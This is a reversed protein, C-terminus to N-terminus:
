EYVSSFDFTCTLNLILYWLDTFRLVKFLVKFISEEHVFKHSLAPRSIFLLVATSFHIQVYFFFSAVSDPQAIVVHCIVIQNTNNKDYRQRM